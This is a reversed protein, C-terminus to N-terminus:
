MYIIAYSKLKTLLNKNFLCYITRRVFGDNQHYFPQLKGDNQHNKGSIFFSPQEGDKEGETTEPEGTFEEETMELFKLYEDGYQQWFWFVIGMYVKMLKRNNRLKKSRMAIMWDAMNNFLHNKAADESEFAQDTIKLQKTIGVVDEATIDYIGFHEQKAQEIFKHLNETDLSGNGISFVKDHTIYGEVEDYVSTKVEMSNHEWSFFAYVELNQYFFYIGNQNLGPAVLKTKADEVKIGCWFALLCIWQNVIYTRYESILNLGEETPELVTEEYGGASQVLKYLLLLIGIVFAITLFMDLTM